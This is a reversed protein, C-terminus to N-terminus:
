SNRSGPPTGEGLAQARGYRVARRVQVPDYGQELLTQRLEGEEALRLFLWALAGLTVISGEVMMLGGAIGQDALASLGWRKVPHEYFPYFVTGSWLFLNGLVTGALRVALIYILRGLNGFWRPTPLPGLLCMWM